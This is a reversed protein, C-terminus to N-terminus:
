NPKLQELITIPANSGIVFRMAGNPGTVLMKGNPLIAAGTAEGLLNQFLTEQAMVDAACMMRTGIMPPYVKLNTGTLAYSVSYNNCGSKGTIKGDSGFMLKVDVSAVIGRGGIDAARWWVDKITAGAAPLGSEAMSPPAEQAEARRTRRNYLCLMTGQAGKMHAQSYTGTVLRADIMVKDSFRVIPGARGNRLGSAAICAAASRKELAAYAGSSSGQAGSGALMAAILSVAVSGRNM